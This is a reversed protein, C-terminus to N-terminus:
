QQSEALANLPLPLTNANFAKSLDGANMSTKEAVQSTTPLNTIIDNRNNALEDTGHVVVFNRLQQHEEGNDEWMRM